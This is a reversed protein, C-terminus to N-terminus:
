WGLGLGHNHECINSNSLSSRDLLSHISVSGELTQNSSDWKLEHVHMCLLLPVSFPYYHPTRALTLDGFCASFRDTSPRLSCSPPLYTNRSSSSRSVSSSSEILAFKETSLPSGFWCGGRWRILMEARIAEM